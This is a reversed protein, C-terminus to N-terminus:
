GLLRKWSTALVLLGIAAIWSGAVRVAITMWGVKRRLVYDTMIMGYGTVVLGALGVGPIFLYPKILATVATGGAMATGNAYGHSLGFVLALAIYVPGPLPFAAAILAGLILASLINILDVGALGPLWLAATAGAMLAIWFLPLAVQARQGQQGCLMGLALFPLVHELATLPHLFGAYFDGVGKVSSHAHAAPALLVLWLTAGISAASRRFRQVAQDAQL